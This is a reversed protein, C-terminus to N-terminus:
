CKIVEEEDRTRMSSQSIAISCKYLETAPLKDSCDNLIHYQIIWLSEDDIRIIFCYGSCIGLDKNGNACKLQAMISNKFLTSFTICETKSANLIVHNENCWDDVTEVVSTIKLIACNLYSATVLINTDDAYILPECFDDCVSTALDNIYLVFMLPWLISGQPLVLSVAEEPSLFSQNKNNIKVKQKRNMLFCKLLQNDRIGYLNLIELLICHDISMDRQWILFYAYQFTAM